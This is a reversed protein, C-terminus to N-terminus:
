WCPPRRLWGHDRIQPVTVHVQLAKGRRNIAEVTVEAPEADVPTSQAKIPQILQEVPLGIDLNMFHM